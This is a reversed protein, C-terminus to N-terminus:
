LGWEIVDLPLLRVCAPWQVMDGDVVKGVYCCSWNSMKM